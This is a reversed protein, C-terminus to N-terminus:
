VLKKGYLTYRRIVRGNKGIKTSVNDQYMLAHIATSLGNRCAEQQVENALVAGLGCGRCSTSVALTKIILRDINGRQLQALDPIAFVFGCCGGQGDFAILVYRSDIKDAFPLYQQLFTSEDIATYLVNNKFAELSLSYVQKLEEAFRSMDVPRWTVGMDQLKKKTEILRSETSESCTVATSIYEYWPTFGSEMWFGPWESPNQPEMLFPETGDSWTVLRYSKWTNGDVPGYVMRCGNERLISCATDLLMRSGLANGPSYHGIVGYRDTEGDAVQSLWIGCYGDEVLICIDCPNQRFRDYESAPPLQDVTLIKTQM